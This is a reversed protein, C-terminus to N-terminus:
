VVNSAIAEVLLFLMFVFVTEMLLSSYHVALWKTGCARTERKTAVQSPAVHKLLDKAYAAATMAAYGQWDKNGKQAFKDRLNADRCLTNGSAILGYHIVIGNEANTREPRLVLTSPDSGCHEACHSSQGSPHVVHPFYLRDSDPDPRGFKTRLKPRRGLIERMSQQLRHGQIEHQARLGNTATLLQFPPANLVRRIDFEQGQFAVGMDYPLVGNHGNGPTSVVVDGLRIDDRISPVGGAIGVLLGIRINRFSFIMHTAVSAASSTGYGQSLVAIVVNHFGLRGFTYKNTDTRSLFGSAPYEEDLFARAAVYETELACIWGNGAVDSAVDISDADNGQRDFGMASLFSESDAFGGEKLFLFYRNEGGRTNYISRRLAATVGLSRCFDADQKGFTSREVHQNWHHWIRESFVPVIKVFPYCHGDKIRVGLLIYLTEEDKRFGKFMLRGVGFNEQDLLILVPGFSSEMFRWRRELTQPCCVPIFTVSNGNHYNPFLRREKLLRTEELSNMVILSQTKLHGVLTRPITMPRSPYPLRSVYLLAGLQRGSVQICAADPPDGTTNALGAQLMVFWSSTYDSTGGLSTITPLPISLGANTMSFISIDDSSLREFGGSGEFATPWPALLSGWDGPVDDIWEWCFITHDNSRKIIEEQLRFFARKGEGYLLPMSIDFIGLMCYAM